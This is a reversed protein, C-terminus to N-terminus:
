KLLLLWIIQGIVEYYTDVMVSATHTNCELCFRAKPRDVILVLYNGM